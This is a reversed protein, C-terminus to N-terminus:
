IKKLNVTPENEESSQYAVAFHSSNHGWAPKGNQDLLICGAEGGIRDLSGLANEIAQDPSSHSLTNMVTAALTLRAISEGDGSFCLGARGNDVYFGCGPLPADGVRGPMAGSLGGTSLGVAMNGEGDLAVCGVTDCPAQQSHSGATEWAIVPFQRKRAFDAAHQGVLLIPKENLLARAVSIPNKINQLGAVAGIALTQGDMISADMEIQGNARAVSGKGANFVGGDEMAKIATEVADLANGGSRLIKTGAEVAERAALRHTEEEAPNITKAGGHIIISWEPM